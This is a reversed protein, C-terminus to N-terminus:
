GDQKAHWSTNLHEYLGRISSRMLSNELMDTSDSFQDIGGILTQSAIRRVDPDQIKELIASGFGQLAIVKFPRGFFSTVSTPLPETISLRNHIQAVIEYAACLSEERSQWDKTALASSLHSEVRPASNLLRFATGFWKPYPAYVKEMLFLLRMLDRVLRAGIIASGIEDGVSGARGMLHEEQGIRHWACALLYLWVDNPYCSFVKRQKEIELRDHFLRGGTLARLKQQPFSLWDAATPERSIDFGLYSRVYEQFELVEIRHSVAGVTGDELSRTGDEEAPVSFSTSFGNFETPLKRSFCEAISDRYKEASGPELFLMVRPGWDHDTSLETDFGLVESGSGILGASYPIAGFESSMLPKVFEHYFAECLELGPIFPKDRRNSM